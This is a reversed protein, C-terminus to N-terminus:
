PKHISKQVMKELESYVEQLERKSNEMSEIEERISFLYNDSCFNIGLNMDIKLTRGRKSKLFINGNADAYYFRAIWDEKDNKTTEIKDMNSTIRKYGKKFLYTLGWGDNVTYLIKEMVGLLFHMNFPNHFLFM